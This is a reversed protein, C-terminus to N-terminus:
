VVPHEYSFEYELGSLTDAVMPFSGSPPQLYTQYISMSVAFALHVVVEVVSEDVEVEVVSEDVKVNTVLILLSVLLSRLVAPPPAAASSSTVAASSTTAAASSTIAAASCTIPATGGADGGDTRYLKHIGTRVVGPPCERELDCPLHLM